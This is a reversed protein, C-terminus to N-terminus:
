SAVFHRGHLLFLIMPDANHLRYDFVTKKVEEFKTQYAALDWIM